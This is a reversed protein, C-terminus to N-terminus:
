IAKAEHRLLRALERAAGAPDEEGKLITGGAKAPPLELKLWRTTAEAWGLAAEDLGLDAPKWTQIPVKKAAMIGKLSPYRPENLGKHAAVLCPLPATFVETGGEVDRQATLSGEGVELKVVGSVHPVDLLEAVMAGVLSQDSGVGKIGCFVLDFPGAKQVAAALVRAIAFADGFTAEGGVVHVAHDAGRALCERLGTSGRDPAYTIVTVEGGRAEKLRIAEELAFEDYPSIIWKIGGEDIRNGAGGIKIISATDPVYAVLVCYKM